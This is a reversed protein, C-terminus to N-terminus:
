APVSLWALMFAREAALAPSPTLSDIFERRGIRISELWQFKATIPLRLTIPLPSALILHRSDPLLTLAGLQFEASIRVDLAAHQALALPGAAGHLHDNRFQWIDWAVLHFKHIIATAWRLSSRRSGTDAFHTQQLVRWGPCWRGLFFNDWGITAHAYLVHRLHLPYLIPLIPSGQRWDRLIALIAAMLAPETDNDSLVVEVPAALASLAFTSAAEAPCHLVHSIKENPRSCIPCNSHDQYRRHLLQNGVGICGTSFKWRVRRLGVPLRQTALRCPEWDVLECDPIHIDHHTEWYQHLRPGYLTRYLTQKTFASLKVNKISLSWDEHLLRVPQLHWPSAGCCTKTLFAKATGDVHDNARAWWDLSTHGRERQHGEVWRWRLVFPLLAIRRRIEQLLDFDPQDVRLPTDGSAERLASQGDLAITISGDTLSFHHALVELASLIGAVWALESRYASQDSPTGYVFNAGELCHLHAAASPSIIFAATGRRLGPDFSGDSVAVADGTVLAARLAECNDM